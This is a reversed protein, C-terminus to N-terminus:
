HAITKIAIFPGRFCLITERLFAKSFFLSFMCISEKRVLTQDAEKRAEQLNVDEKGKTQEKKKNNKRTTEGAGEHCGREM